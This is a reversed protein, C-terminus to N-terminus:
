RGSLSRVPDLLSSEGRLLLKTGARRASIVVAYQLAHQYGHVWLVDFQGAKLRAGLGYAVPRIFTQDHGRILCPLVESRYGDLLPIDWKIIEGFDPDMYGDLTRGDIFFVKLDLWREAALRRLLPAQYQIPHTVLYAVRVKGRAGSAENSSM